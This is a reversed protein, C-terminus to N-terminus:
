SRVCLCLEYYRREMLRRKARRANKGSFKVLGKALYYLQLAASKDIEMFSIIEDIFVEGCHLTIFRRAIRGNDPLKWLPAKPLRAQRDRPQLRKAKIM